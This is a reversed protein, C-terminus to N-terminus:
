PNAKPEAVAPVALPQAASTEAQGSKKIYVETRRNKQMHEETDNPAIPRTFGFGKYTLRQRNIGGVEVLYDVVARARRDSLALNYEHKSLKRKDAHGEVKATAGPDRQLVKVIIDLKEFYQPKIIAKDYDFEINLIFLQLDDKPDLPNTGDEIVEHGDSVGGRDTDPDMPDTHYIKVEAGDSLGDFDSDPNLPDTHYIKVEEGDTLGDGDTDPNFPDTGLLMEEKDTLGDGDSDLDGPTILTYRPPMSAGFRYTVGASILTHIETNVGEVSLRYDGRLAWVDNFHYFLGAGAQVFPVVNGHGLDEEYVNAGLGAALFPDVHLDKTNRLHFLADGGLRVGWTDNSLAKFTESADRRSLNPMIDLGLELTWQPSLDYGLKLELSYSDKVVEDGERKTLGGGLSLTWPAAAFLDRAPPTSQAPPPMDARTQFGALLMALTAARGIHKMM